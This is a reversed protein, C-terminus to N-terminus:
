LFFTDGAQTFFASSSLLILMHDLCLFACSDVLWVLQVSFMWLNCLILAARECLSSSCFDVRMENEIIWDYIERGVREWGQWVDGAWRPTLCHPAQVVFMFVCTVVYTPVAFLFLAVVFGEWTTLVELLHTSATWLLCLLFIYISAASFRLASHWFCFKSASLVHPLTQVRACQCLAELEVTVGWDMVASWTMCEWGPGWTM